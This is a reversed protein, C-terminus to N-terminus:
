ACRPARKGDNCVVECTRKKGGRAARFRRATIFYRVPDLYDIILKGDLHDNEHQIARAAMGEFEETFFEGRGNQAMVKVSGPRTVTINVGPVSLCGESMKLKARSRSLIRPNVFERLGCGVDIVFLRLSLGVQPAALGVGGSEYMARAMDAVTDTMGALDKVQKAKGRLVPDPFIRLTFKAM